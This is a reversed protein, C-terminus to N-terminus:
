HGTTSEARTKFEDSRSMGQHPGDQRAIKRRSNAVQEFIAVLRDVHKEFTHQRGLHFASVTMAARAANQTMADLATILEDHAGPRSLVFGQRGHSLLESAGNCATTIVPLGCALAEFVVLSCPDYYTPQAFFDASWYLDRVDPYFGLFRVSRDIGLRGALERYPKEHGGGAVLLQIPRAYPNARLRAGLAELLPGLGKLAFNHGAFLCVLADHPIGSEKRFRARIERPHSVDIRHPDIANHIVSVRDPPVEHYRELHGAVMRSVAVFRTQRALDFQRREIARYVWWKINAQKGLRYLLRGPASHFREANAALSGQHVGGQPILVDHGWTNIFGVSCDCRADRIAIESQKAFNWIRELKTRGSVGVAVPKVGAPLARQNWGQAFLEVSHGL